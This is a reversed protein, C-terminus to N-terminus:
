NVITPRGKLGPKSLREILARADRLDTTDFGENFWGYIESLLMCAEEDRGQQRYLQALSTVARLEWSKAQQERAIRIAQHFCSEAESVTRADVEVATKLDAAERHGPSAAQRLVLEGKLRYLEAQYYREGKQEIM